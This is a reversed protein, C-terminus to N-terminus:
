RSMMRNKAMGIVGSIQNLDTWVGHDVAVSRLERTKDNQDGTELYRSLCDIFAAETVVPKIRKESNMTSHRYMDVVTRAPSTILVEVGQIIITDVDNLRAADPWMHISVRSEFSDLSPKRSTPSIAIDPSGMLEESLGHFDAAASLCFVADYAVSIAAWFLRQDDSESPMHYVGRVPRDLWGQTALQSLTMRNIGWASAQSATFPKGDQGQIIDCAKKLYQHM